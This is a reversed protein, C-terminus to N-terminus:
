IQQEGSDQNPNRNSAMVMVLILKTLLHNM